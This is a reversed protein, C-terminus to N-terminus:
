EAATLTQAPLVPMTGAATEQKYIMCTVRLLSAFNPVEGHIEIVEDYLTSLFRPTSLDQSAAIEDLIQWFKRELRLSTSRGALRLSRLENKYQEPDQRAFIECM